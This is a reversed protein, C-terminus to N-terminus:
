GQISWIKLYQVTIDTLPAQAGVGVIGVQGSTSTPFLSTHVHFAQIFTANIYLYVNDYLVIATVVNPQNQGTNVSPSTDPCASAVTSYDPAPTPGLCLVDQPSELDNFFVNGALCSKNETTIRCFGFFYYHYSSGLSDHSYGLVVGSGAGQLITVEAQIAFNGTIIPPALCALYDSTIPSVHYGQPGKDECEGYKPTGIIWQSGNPPNYEQTPLGSVYRQYYERATAANVVIAPGTPGSTIWYHIGVSAGPGSTIWYHIGVSGGLLGIVLIISLSLFLKRRTNPPWIPHHEASQLRHKAGLTQENEKQRDDQVAEYKNKNNFGLEQPGYTQQVHTTILEKVVKEIGKTVEFFADDLTHWYKSSVPEANAPLMQLKGFPTAQWYVPRLLIPLVRALGQEHRHMARKMENGYCYDSDIFDPSVLPLIIDAENLYADIERERDAGPSITRDHWLTILGQRQLVRLQKELGQCLQEDEHAYYIFIKIEKNM